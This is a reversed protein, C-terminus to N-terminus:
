EYSAWSIATCPAVMLMRTSVGRMFGLIIIIIFYPFIFIFIIIKIINKKGM